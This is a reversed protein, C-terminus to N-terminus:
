RKGPRQGMDAGLKRLTQKMMTKDLELQEVSSVGTEEEGIGERGLYDALSRVTPYKFLVMLPFDAKITEKLKNHVQLINVSNGGIDFFRTQVSIKDLGLVEKWTRAIIKEMETGPKIYNESIEYGPEPLGRRDVKGSLTIPVAELPVFYDPLMYEPLYRTLYEKIEMPKVRQNAAVYYACLLKNGNKERAVVVADKVDQHSQIKNEIEGPEIRFGRIKVQHDIRGFFQINGDPLWRALDGTNYIKQRRRGPPSKELFGDGRVGPLLKKNTKNEWRYRDGAGTVQEVFKKATLEPNNLYGRALSHGAICIEGPVGIPQLYFSNPNLIYVQNNHIPKGIPINEEKNKVPYSTTVVTNETPGYNNYVQYPQPVFTRLKDGGTLLARLHRKGKSDPLMMLQEAAPTPLFGITIGHRHFYNDVQYIDRKIQDEIIHLAAGAALYPFIEWASADFGLSAYQAAHDGPVVAYYRNHWHCLNVLSRHEVAVGKPRGTSGSTYIIYALQRQSFLAAPSINENATWQGDIIEIEKFREKEREELDLFGAHGYKVIIKVEIDELIYNIREQPYGPDIPLYAAGAKLIGMIGVIMEISRGMMVAAITDAATGKEKLLRALQNAERNLRNYTLSTEEHILAIKDPTKRAQKEFLEDIRCNDPYRDWTRNFDDLIQQKERDPLIDIALIKIAPQRIVSAATNKFYNITRQITETKFLKTCYEIKFFLNEETENVELTLDFKSVGREFNYFRFVPQHSQPELNQLVFVVDFIPNRSLDRNVDVKDVLDEFPYDQNDFDNITNEKVEKLLQEFNKGATPSNRLPLTNVFMGIISELDQHPRGAVPTGVVIDEQGTLKFLWIYFIALLKMYLTAGAAPALRKLRRTKEKGIEFYAAKGEFSQEAPRGYDTPLHLVPVEGKFRKIWYEEQLVIKQKVAERNQWQAYDKYHIRLGTQEKDEYAASCDSLLLAHSVGDCIIHHMDVMLLYLYRDRNEGAGTPSFKALTVRLLPARSLDFPRIFGSSLHRIVASFRSDSGPGTRQSRDGTEQEGADTSLDYYHINFDVEEYNHIRQVPKGEIMHFSTRLSEHRQILKLFMHTLKERDINKGVELISPMNYGTNQPDMVHLFYLRRQAPCVPYHDKKEAAEISIFIEREKTKIYAALEKVTFYKFIEGMTMRVNLVKHIKSIMLVVRLSNGGMAFFSNNIGVKKIKLIEQWINVLKKETENGPPEYTTSAVLSEDATYTPLAVLDLATPYQLPLFQKKHLLNESNVLHVDWQSGPVPSSAPRSEGKRIEMYAPVSIVEDTDMQMSPDNLILRYLHPGNKDLFKKQDLNEKRPVLLQIEGWGGRELNIVLCEPSNMNKVQRYGLHNFFAVAPGPEALVLQATSARTKGPPEEQYEGHKDEVLEILGVEPVSVFAIDKLDFLQAPKPDSAIEYSMNNDELSQLFARINPVRYCLHYPTDGNKDLIRSIPSGTELGAVLEIPDFGPKECVVVNVQQLPDHVVEGCNFGLSRYHSISRHIDSVAVAIHELLAIQPQHPRNLPEGPIDKELPTQFFLEGLEVATPIQAVELTFTTRRPEEGQELAPKVINWRSEMFQHIPKNKPTPYYDAQLTKIGKGDCYRRLGVLIADEVGRGLVRCSLLFTDIFLYDEEERTIVVGVLGYDGFRDSVEIAWGITGNIGMLAHIEDEQRRITSLNFQNTRRTLQSVRAVQGPKMKNMAIKIELGALYDTLSRSKERTEKRKKDELYMRTRKRDEDTVIAKDLAWVHSLFGPISESSRPLQLALVEPCNSMVESCENPSDDIFIFSDTGLNLERALSRINESKPEWNIRWGVFHEKTLIMDPNKEFVEWVDNQNNKSCIALLLGQNYKKLMFRQLERYPDTVRVGLAGDEGCIGEWLTNDCDLAIVKFPENNFAIIRRAIDTGLAAYYENSFPIHGESDMVADFVEPVQYCQALGTFDMIYVNGAEPGKLLNKWRTNLDELYGSVLASFGLHTSVPFVGLLYPVQKKKNIFIDRLQRYNNELQKCKDEDTISESVDRLWDEFRILLVNIGPNTSIESTEQLLQQFVQNYPAFVVEVELQFQQGWWRIYDKIPEATFTASIVVNISPKGNTSAAAPRERKEQVRHREEDTLCELDELKIGPNQLVKEILLTFHEMFGKISEETFLNINYELACYLKKDVTLSADLKFDLKSTSGTLHYPVVKSEKIPRDSAAQGENHFILMTDFLPNRAPALSGSLHDVLDEFPYDQNEYAGLLNQKITSLFQDFSTTRDVICRIPLFNAFMGIINELDAHQRGAALSGIIVEDQGSYESVLLTYLAFLLTNLTVNKEQEYATLKNVTEVPIIRSSTSGEFTRQSPREFDLPMSLLPLEGQFRNLWYAEQRKIEEGQFLQDQWQTYDKYRISLTPLENGKDAYLYIFDRILIGLSFGDSIIHHMDYLFCYKEKELRVLSARLLPATKLDFPQIFESIAQKFEDERMELYLLEFDAQRRIVQVYEGNILDFSTRLSEHRAILEELVQQFRKPELEGPMMTASFMNYTQRIGEMENLVCLRKQASSVPYYEKEEVPNIAAFEAKKAAMIIKAQKEITTNTFMEGLSIRIDFEKHIKSILAMVNLSNGGLKYFDATVDPSEIPLVQSWLELLKQETENGPPHGEPKNESLPDPLAKYNVKGSSTFPIDELVLLHAPVMYGPLHRSLYEELQNRLSGEDISAAESRLKIYACLVRNGTSIEKYIVAADKVSSHGTLVSEIEGLEVRIGRIKVQRDTRGLLDINGDVLLRGIDGTDHLRDGPDTGFPNPIFAKENALPDCCYGCTRYPTRIYIRGTVLEDCPDMDQDLILLQSGKMPKGIPIRERVLDSPRIFYYSKIMTTETPGYYNVLQIREDFTSYWEALDAPNIKEGSLLVFKLAKFQRPNLNSNFSRFVSPVCHIVQIGVEDIWKILQQSSLLIEKNGPISVTGGACLPVFVDRLFADFVPSTLQSFRFTEDIGFTDIEWDIFHLLSENKGLIAKPTGTSGSTFYIYIPDQPSYDNDPSPNRASSSVHTDSILGKEIDRTTLTGFNTEDTLLLQLGTTHIMGELRNEPLDDALPVFVCGARLIGVIALILELRDQSLLGIFTGKGVGSNAIWGAIDTSKRDLHGYTVLSEGYEIATNNKYKDLTKNLRNQFVNGKSNIIEIQSYLEQNLQALIQEKREGSIKKLESIKKGPNEIVFSIIELFSRIFCRITSKKFLKTCYEFHFNLQKNTQEGFLTLDFKSIGNDFGLSKAKLGSSLTPTTSVPSENSEERPELYINQYMFMTDFLPNRSTDRKKVVKEVLEEFPYEQNEFANLTSVKIENLLTAFTKAPQPYNRIALTNVFVGMVHALDPHRRGAVGIGVVFDEQSTLRALFVNYLGLLVMFLTVQQAAALEKLQRTREKGIDFRAISGEFGQVAPRAYDYPLALVPIDGGAQFQTLWYAEQQALVEQQRPSTQWESYDKYQVQLPPLEEGAYLTMLEKVFVEHSVGDTVIHHIDFMLIHQAEEIKILGMRLFPPRSLDFPKVFNKIIGRNFDPLPHEAPSDYCEIFFEIAEKDHIVQVPQEDKMVISTRLSEHRRIMQRVSQQLQERDPHGELLVVYPSNYAVTNEDMQQLIYLRKQVSSLIYYQKTEAPSIPNYTETEVGGICQAVGEITSHDFFEKIPITVKLEKQILAIINIAKLSDAGLDFLDDTIGIKEIGLFRQWIDALKQELANGPPLYPNSLEPRSHLPVPLPDQKESKEDAELGELKVWRSIRGELDGGVSFIVQQLWASSLIRHFAKGTDEQNTGDWDVILWPEQKKQNHKISFADMFHNAASYAVFGLGGLVTSISSIMLCFDLNKELSLEELVLTGELKARFQQRCQSLTIDATTNFSEGKIIGASHIVGNIPGLLDEGQKVAAQMGMADSVDARCYLIDGNGAIEKLRQLKRINQHTNDDEDNIDLYQAWMEPPLLQSRGTLIVKAGVTKILYEALTYGIDGLGGTILYVGGQRLLPSSQHGPEQLPIPEYFQVWRQFGRFAVVPEVTDWPQSHMGTEILLQEIVAQNQWDTIDISKCTIGPYEQPIVRCPGMVAAKGPQLNEDGTVEQMNDTVVNIEIKGTYNCHRGLAKALYVLSYFGLELSKEILEGEIGSEEGGTIGWLHVIRNPIVGLSNLQLVLAEYDDSQKPNIEFEGNTQQQYKMGAKVIIIQSQRQQGTKNNKLKELFRDGVGLDDMFVLWCLDVGTDKNQNTDLLHPIKQRKWSPVYFWDALDRSKGVGQWGSFGSLKGARYDDMLKWYRYGEFPYTPLPVRQRDGGQHFQEWNVPIGYLWLLGIKDLLYHDDPVATKASRPRVLNVVHHHHPIGYKEDLQRQVLTRIDRGAGVELFVVNTDEIVTQIGRAFRVTERLQRAWYHPSTADEVTIWTGTVSSIYPVQPPNLQVAGVSGTFDRLIPEMMISHIAQSSDMPVCVRKRKKMQTEFAKVTEQAGSVVCSAGNDIAISLQGSLLPELEEIPLPVSVMRGPPLQRLLEGRTVLVKLADELSFVNALCAAAYEGFSYGIMARPTIGWAMLLRALSYEFIFVMLQAIEIHNIDSRNGMKGPYLIDKIDYDQIDKLIEFGRDMEERFLPEKEYLHRGMNVYQSGLGSFMFIVQKKEDKTQFTQVKRSDLTSLGNTADSVNSCVLKRRYPFPKRGMQLTYAVDALNLGPYKQLHELLNATMKELASETKASLLILQCERSQGPSSVEGRGQSQRRDETKQRRVGPAEELVVHANTGGIGFSSVGALLPTGNSEWDKLVRNVYFPTNDFDIRHNPTEFHLSPPIQRHTLALVTKIFGAVGAAADLHGISAKVSGLACFGKKAADFALKLAEIEVPDGLETATGHTEIFGISEPEIHAVQHATLIVEAQGEISPASFGVRRIGDNNVASGKIVSYIYDRQNLADELPKLVVIGAGEGSILGGARNDFARCHGDPSLVMGERYMYGEQHPIAVTVGGALAMDCEGNLLAQCAMHIAVLSTSCATKLEIAPGKLGLKYAVRLSLFDKNTLQLAAWYDIDRTTGSFTSLAEWYFNSSAGAFLGILGAFSEAAYGANELAEWACEHFIRVQPDMIEAEQPTYGFFWSDFYEIDEIIAKAKVYSSNKVLAPAIGVAEMERDSFFSVPEVGNKLNDWFEHITRAAPFRASMGIVAIELGTDTNEETM